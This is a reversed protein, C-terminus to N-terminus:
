FTYMGGLDLQKGRNTKKVHKLAFNYELTALTHLDAIDQSVKEWPAGSMLFILVPIESVKTSQITRYPNKCSLAATHHEGCSIQGVVAGLASEVVKPITVSEDSNHGLQGNEGCGWSFVCHM